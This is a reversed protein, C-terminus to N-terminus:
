LGFVLVVPALVRCLLVTADSRPAVRRGPAWGARAARDEGRGGRLLLVAGTVAALLMFEEGLTDLGRYDFNVASVANQVHRERPAAANIADGYPLPHAGFAPMHAAVRWAVPLLALAAVAFVALRPGRTM